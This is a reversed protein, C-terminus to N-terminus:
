GLRDLRMATPLNFTSIWETQGDPGFPPRYHLTDIYRVTSRTPPAFHNTMPESLSFATDTYEMSHEPGVSSTRSDAGEFGGTECCRGSPAPSVRGSTSM